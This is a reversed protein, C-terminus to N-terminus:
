IKNVNNSVYLMGINGYHTYYITTIGISVCHYLCVSCPRATYEGYSRTKRNIRVSFLTGGIPSTGVTAGIEAHQHSEGSVHSISRYTRPKHIEGIRNTGVCIQRGRGDRFRVAAGHWCRPHESNSACSLAADMLRAERSSLLQESIITEYVKKSGVQIFATPSYKTGDLMTGTRVVNGTLSTSASRASKMTTHRLSTLNM